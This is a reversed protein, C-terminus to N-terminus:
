QAAELNYTLQTILWCDNQKVLEWRDGAPSVESGIQTTAKVVARTGDITIELDTPQAMAPAGPFVTGVYRHRIAIKDQWVQDDAADDPTNKADVVQAGDAWLAMLGDIEQAVVNAGEAHLVARILEDDANSDAVVLSCSGAHTDEEREAVTAPAPTSCGSGWLLLLLLLIRSSLCCQWLHSLQPSLQNM